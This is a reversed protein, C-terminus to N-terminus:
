KRVIYVLETAFSLKTVEWNKGTVLTQFHEDYNVLMGKNKGTLSKVPFSAVIIKAPIKELLRAGADDKVQELCPIAKLLLAVDAEQTPPTELVDCSIAQGSIELIGLFGNLFDALDQYIDYAYYNTTGANLGMWPIALPNLGCAIDLVINPKPFQSFIKKYFDEIIPLRERTSAHTSMIKACLPRIEDKNCLSLNSLWGDYDYKGDFYVAGVQHLKSRTYKIADKLKKRKRLQDEGISRVFQADIMRYKSSNKINDVIEEISDKM